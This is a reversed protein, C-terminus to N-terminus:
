GEIIGLWQVLILYLLWSLVQLIFPAGTAERLKADIFTGGECTVVKEAPPVSGGVQSLAVM